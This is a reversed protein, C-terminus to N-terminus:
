IHVLQGCVEVWRIEVRAENRRKATENQLNKGTVPLLRPEIKVINCVNTLLKAM